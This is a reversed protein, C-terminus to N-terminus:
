QVYVKWRQGIEIQSGGAFRSDLQFNLQGGDEHWPSKMGRFTKSPTVYSISSLDAGPRRNFVKRLLGAKMEAPLEAGKLDELAGWSMHEQKLPSVHVTGLMTATRVEGQQLPEMTVLYGEGVVAKKDQAQWNDPHFIIAPIQVTHLQLDKWSKRNKL